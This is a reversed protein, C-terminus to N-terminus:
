QVLVSDTMSCSPVMDGDLDPVPRISTFRVRTPTRRATRTGAGSSSRGHQTEETDIAEFPLVRSPPPASRAPTRRMAGRPAGSRRDSARDTTLTIHAISRQQDVAQVSLAVPRPDGWTSRPVPNETPLVDIVGVVAATM